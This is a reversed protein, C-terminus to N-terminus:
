KLRVMMEKEINVGNSGVIADAAVRKAMMSYPTGTMMTRPLEEGKIELSIWYQKDFPLDM